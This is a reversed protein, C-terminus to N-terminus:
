LCPSHCFCVQERHLHQTKQASTDEPLAQGAVVAAGTHKKKEEELYSNWDTFWTVDAGELLQDM